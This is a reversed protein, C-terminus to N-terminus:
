YALAAELALDRNQRFAAFTPPVYVQPALWTRHDDPWATQWYLDSVNASLGSYPLTFPKEEGVFNPASGTPEGIFTAKTHRELMTATNQAASFTRRGILVFLKGAQNLRANAQLGAVLAPVLYTNGGNNWRLDVVLKELQPDAAAQLLRETFRAFPETENNRVSNFQFYLVKGGPLTEFWYKEGMRKLYAPLPTTLTQPLNVWTSPNPLTNWINPQSADAPLVVQRTRGRLDKLTLTTRDTTPQLGLAHLVAPQRMEYPAVQKPWYANDRSLIPLLAETVQPVTKDGFRLVQAGLLERYKPDASIIFLGEEFHYFQVPLAQCLATLREGGPFINSHGDGLLATLKRLELYLQMDTLRPVAAAVAQVAADLQDPTIARPVAFGRRRAERAFIDLDTRWGEDRSMQSVDVLSVLRRYRANQRLPRWVSDTQADTLYGFRLNLSKELWDLAKDPEHLQMYLTAASYAAEEPEPGGLAVVQEYAQIAERRQGARQQAQGLQQWFRPQVPNAAVVQQWLTAATAWAKAESQAEAQRLLQPFSAASQQAYAPHALLM